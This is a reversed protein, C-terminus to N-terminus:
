FSNGEKWSVYYECFCHIFHKNMDYLFKTLFYILINMFFSVSFFNLHVSYVMEFKLCSCITYKYSGKNLETYNTVFIM